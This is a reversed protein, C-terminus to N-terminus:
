GQRNMNSEKLVKSLSKGQWVVKFASLASDWRSDSVSEDFIDLIPPIACAAVIKVVKKLRQFLARQGSRWKKDTYGPVNNKRFSAREFKLVPIEFSASCGLRWYEILMEVSKPMGPLFQQFSDGEIAEKRASRPCSGLFKPFEAVRIPWSTTANSDTSDFPVSDNFNLNRQFQHKGRELMPNLDQCASNMGAEGRGIESDQEIRKRIAHLHFLRRSLSSAWVRLSEHKPSIRSSSVNRLARKMINQSLSLRIKPEDYILSEPSKFGVGTGGGQLPAVYGSREM